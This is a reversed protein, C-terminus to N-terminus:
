LPLHGSHEGSGSKQSVKESPRFISELAETPGQMPKSRREGVPGGGSGGPVGGLPGKSAGFLGGLPGWSAGLLGGLPGLSVGLLGRFPGTGNLGPGFGRFQEAARGELSM